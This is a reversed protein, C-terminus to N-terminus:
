ATATESAHSHSRLNDAASSNHVNEFELLVHDGFVRLLPWDSCVRDIRELLGLIGKHKRAWGEVYSPPVFLGVARISRLRFWPSFVRRMTRVTPYWVPVSIGDLQAVTGASVRRFAKKFNARASYWIVEWLCLRSSVCILATGGSKVLRGLDTAVPRLDPLCNLGSFNSLAGDFTLHSLQGLDENPLVRFELSAPYDSENRRKAIEIMRPSADCALVSIGRSALFRADEGTGCNLELTRDGPQFLRKLAEWVVSRQARGIVSQTFVVDYSEAMRDFAAQAGHTEYTASSMM